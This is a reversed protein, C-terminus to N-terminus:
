FAQNVEPNLKYSITSSSGTPDSTVWDKGKHPHSHRFRFGLADAFLFAIRDTFLNIAMPRLRVKHATRYKRFNKSVASVDVTPLQASLSELSQMTSVLSTAPRRRIPSQQLRSSDQFSLPQLHFNTTELADSPIITSNIVCLPEERGDYGTEQRERSKDRRLEVCIEREIM